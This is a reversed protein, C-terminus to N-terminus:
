AYASGLYYHVEASKPDAAVAKELVTIAADSDGRNLAARAQEIDATHAAFSAGASVVVIALALRMGQAAARMPKEKTSLPAPLESKRAQHRRRPQRGRAGCAVGMAGM